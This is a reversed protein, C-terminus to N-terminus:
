EAVARNYDEESIMGRDLMSKLAYNRREINADPNDIPNYQSPNKTIVAISACEAM